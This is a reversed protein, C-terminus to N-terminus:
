ARAKRSPRRVSSWSSWKRRSVTGPSPRGSRDAGAGGARVEPLVRRDRHPDPRDARDVLGAEIPVELVPTLEVRRARPDPREEAVALGVLGFREPRDVEGRALAQVVQGEDDVAVQLPEVARDAAVALDNLLELRGEAAGAPVDDLHDPRPLPVLEQGAIDVAHEDLLHVVGEVALELLERDGAAGVDPLMEEPGIRAEALEDLMEGVVIEGLEAPAAVVIALDVRGVLGRGLRLASGGHDQGLRDLAPRESRTDLSAVDGVLGLLQGLGLQLDEAVPDLQRDRIGLDLVRRVVM